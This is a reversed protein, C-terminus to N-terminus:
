LVVYTGSVMLSDGISVKPLRIGGGFFTADDHTVTTTNSIQVPIQLLTEGHIGSPLSLDTSRDVKSDFCLLLTVVNGSKIYWCYDEDWNDYYDTNPNEITVKTPTTDILGDLKTKDATSMLGATTTTAESYTTNKYYPVGDIIPTALFGTNETVRSTTTVGGLVNLEATPLTYNELSELKTKDEDTYDNSSLGKGEEKDVKNLLLDETQKKTYADVTGGSGGVNLNESIVDLAESVTHAPNDEVSVTSIKEGLRKLANVNSISM